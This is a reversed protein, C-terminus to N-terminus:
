MMQKYKRQLVYGNYEGNLIPEALCNELTIDQILAEKAVTKNAILLSDTISSTSIKTSVISCDLISIGIDRTEDETGYTIEVNLSDTSDRYEGELDSLYISTTKTSQDVSSIEKVTDSYTNHEGIMDM